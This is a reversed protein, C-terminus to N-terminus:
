AEVNEKMKDIFSLKLAQLEREIEEKLALKELDDELAPNRGFNVLDAEAEMKEIRNELEEFKIIADSDVRRIEEQARKKRTAYTHRQVLMREKKRVSNLKEEIQGIDDKYQELLVDHEVLENELSEKRQFFRRKEHLAERALDDRGKNVALNAKDEWYDIRKEIIQLHRQVNKNESMAGACACKLEILTDEMERIMMRILKEPDEARDLMSNINASIIDNFRTLTGM